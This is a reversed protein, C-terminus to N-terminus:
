MLEHLIEPIIEPLDASILGAGLRTGAEGHIWVAACVAGFLSLGEINRAALGAIMGALVDGTGATALWGTGNSNVVCGGEPSAIITDAGKLVVIAKSAKAAVQAREPRSGKLNPFVREFEGDHPTLVCHASTAKLLIQPEDVFATLADADIICIKRPECQVTDLVAKRLGAVNDLGAGSGILVINKRQDQIHDKFRAIEPEIEVLLSPCFTQYVGATEPSSVISCLGAGMRLASVSALCAAGTMRRGGYVVVHGHDYKHSHTAKPKLHVGWGAEPDNNILQLSTASM